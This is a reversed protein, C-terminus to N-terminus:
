ENVDSLDLLDPDFHLLDEAELPLGNENGSKRNQERPEKRFSYRIGLEALLGNQVSGSFFNQASQFGGRQKNSVWLKRRVLVSLGFRIQWRDSLPTTGTYGLALARSRFFVHEKTQSQSFASTHWVGFRGMPRVQFQSTLLPTHRIRYSISFPLFITLIKHDSPRYRFGLIPLVLGQGFLFTYAVGGSYAWHSSVRRHFVFTSLPLFTSKGVQRADGIWNGGVSGLWLNKPGSFFVASLTSQNQFFRVLGPLVFQHNQWESANRFQVAIAKFKENRLTLMRYLPIKVRGFVTQNAYTTSDGNLPRSPTIGVGLEGTFVLPLGQAQSFTPHFTLCFIFGSLFHWAKM